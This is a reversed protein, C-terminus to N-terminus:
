RSYRRAVLAISSTRRANTRQCSAGLLSEDPEDLPVPLAADRPTGVRRLVPDAIVWGHKWFRGSSGPFALPKLGTASGAGYAHDAYPPVESHISRIEHLASGTPSGLQRTSGSVWWIWTCLRLAPFSYGRRGELQHWAICVTELLM